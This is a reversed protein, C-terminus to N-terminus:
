TPARPRCAERTLRPPHSDCVERGHRRLPRADGVVAREEDRRESLLDLEGDRPSSALADRSPGVYSEVVDPVVGLRVGPYDVREPAPRTDDDEVVENEVVEDRPHGDSTPVAVAVETRHLPLM